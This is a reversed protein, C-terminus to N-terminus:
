FYTIAIPATSYNIGACAIGLVRASVICCKEPLHLVCVCTPACCQQARLIM